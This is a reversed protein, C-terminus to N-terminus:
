KEFTILYFGYNFLFIGIGGLLIRAIIDPISFGQSIPSEVVYEMMTLYGIKLIFFIIILFLGIAVLLCIKRINSGKPSKIGTILYIYCLYGFNYFSLVQLTVSTISIIWVYNPVYRLALIPPLVVACILSSYTHWPRAHMQTVYREMPYTYFALGILFLIFTLATNVTIIYTFGEINFFDFYLYPYFEDQLMILNPVGTWRMILDVSLYVFIGFFILFTMSTFLYLKKFNGKLKPIRSWLHFCTLLCLSSFLINVIYDVDYGNIQYNIYELHILDIIIWPIAYVIVIISALISKKYTKEEM